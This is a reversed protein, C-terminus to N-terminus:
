RSVNSQTCRKDAGPSKHHIEAPATFCSRNVRPVICSSSSIIVWRRVAALRWGWPNYKCSLCRYRSRLQHLWDISDGCRRRHRRIVGTVCSIVVVSLSGTQRDSKDEMLHSLQHRNSLLVQASTFSVRSLPPASRRGGRHNDVTPFATPPPLSTSSRFFQCYIDRSPSVRLLTHKKKKQQAPPRPFSLPFHCHM